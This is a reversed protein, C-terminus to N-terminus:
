INKLEEELKKIEDEQKKKNELLIRIKEEKELQEKSKFVYEDLEENDDLEYESDTFEYDSDSDLEENNTNEDVLNSENEQKNENLIEKTEEEKLKDIFSGNTEDLETKQEEGEEVVCPVIEEEQQNPDKEEENKEEEQNPAVEEEQNSVVEKDKNEVEKEQNYVLEEEEKEKNEEEQVPAIEKEQVPADEEEQVPAIEKEQVPTVEEEQVPAIEEQQNPAVEEEQNSNKNENIIYTTSTEPEDIDIDDMDLKFFVNNTENDLTIDNDTRRKEFKITHSENDNDNNDNNNDRQENNNPQENNEITDDSFFYGSPLIDEEIIKLLKVKCIEWEAKFEKSSYRLGSFRIIAILDDDPCIKNINVMKKKDNYVELMLKGKFTPIKLRFVPKNGNTKIKIPSKYFDEITNFPLQQNFWENSNYHCTLVNKEDIASLFDYFSSNFGELDLEVDIFFEGDIKFIGTTTKLRPTELYIPLPTNKLFKYYITSVLYNNSTKQPPYYDLKQFDLNKYNLIRPFNNASAM